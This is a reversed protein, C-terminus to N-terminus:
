RESCHGSRHRRTSPGAPDPASTPVPSSGTPRPWAHRSARSSRRSSRTRRALAKITAADRKHTTTAPKAPLMRQHATAELVQANAAVPVVLALTVSASTILTRVKM